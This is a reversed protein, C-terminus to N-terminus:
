DLGINASHTPGAVDPRLRGGHRGYLVVSLWTHPSRQLWSLSKAHGPIHLVGHPSNEARLLLQVYDQTNLPYLSTLRSRLRALLFASHSSLLLTEALM